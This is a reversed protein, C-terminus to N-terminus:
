RCNEFKKGPSAGKPDFDDATGGTTIVELLLLKIINRLLAYM